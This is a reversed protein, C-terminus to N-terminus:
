LFWMNRGTEIHIQYDTLTYCSDFNWFESAMIELVTWSQIYTNQTKETYNLMLFVRGFDPGNRRNCGTYIYIYIYIYLLFSVVNGVCKLLSIKGKKPMCIISPVSRRPHSAQNRQKVKLGMDWQLRWGGDRFPIRLRKGIDRSLGPLVHNEKQEDSLLHSM